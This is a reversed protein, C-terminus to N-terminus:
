QKQYHARSVGANTRRRDHRSRRLTDLRSNQIIHCLVGASLYLIFNSLTLEGGIMSNLVSNGFLMFMFQQSSSAHQSIRRYSILLRAVVFCVLLGMFLGLESSSELVLNHPAVIFRHYESFNGLGIGFPNEAILEIALHYIDLRDGEDRHASPMWNELRFREVIQPPLLELQLALLLAGVGFALMLSVRLTSKGIKVYASMVVMSVLLMLLVGRSGTKLVALVSIVSVVFYWAKVKGGEGLLLSGVYIAPIICIKGMFAPNLGLESRRVNEVSSAGFISILCFFIGVAFLGKALFDLGRDAGVVVPIIFIGLPFLFMLYLLKNVGYASEAPVFQYHIIVYAVFFFAIAGNVSYAAYGSKIVKLVTALALYGAIGGMLGFRVSPPFLPYNMVAYIVCVATVNLKLLVSNVFFHGYNECHM